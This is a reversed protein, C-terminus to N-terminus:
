VRVPLILVETGNRGTGYVPYNVNNDKCNYGSTIVERFMTFWKYNVYMLDAGPAELIACLNDEAIEKINGNYYREFTGKHLDEFIRTFDPGHKQEGKDYMISDNGPLEKYFGSIPTFYAAYFSVNVKVASFGDSVYYFENDRQIILRQAKSYHKAIRTYNTKETAM